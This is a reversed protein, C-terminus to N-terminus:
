QNKKIYDEAGLTQNVDDWTKNANRAFGIGASAEPLSSGVLANMVAHCCNHSGLAYPKSAFSVYYSKLQNWKKIGQESGVLIKGRSTNTPDEDKSGISNSPDFSLSDEVERKDNLLVLFCHTAIKGALGQVPRARM